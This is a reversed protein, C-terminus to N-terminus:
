LILFWVGNNKGRRVIINERERLTGIGREGYARERENEGGNRM